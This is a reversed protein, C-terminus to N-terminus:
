KSIIVYNNNMIFRCSSANSLVNMVQEFTQNEFTGTFRYDLIEPDKVEISVRYWRELRAKMDGFREKDFVLKNETWAVSFNGEQISQVRYQENERHLTVKQGPSMKLNSQRDTNDNIWLLEVTGEVLTTEVVPDGNYAMVNFKTGLVKIELDNSHIIFPHRSDKTVDFFGEGQLFVQRQAGEFNAPYKFQAGANLWVTSSDPLLVKTKSGYPVSIETYQLSTEVAIDVHSPKTTVEQLAWSLGFAIMLVAAYRFFIKSRHNITPSQHRRVSPQARRTLSTRQFHIKRGAKQLSSVATPNEIEMRIKEFMADSSIEGSAQWSEKTWEEQLWDTMEDKFRNDAMYQYLDSKEKSTLTGSLFGSLLGDLNNKHLM